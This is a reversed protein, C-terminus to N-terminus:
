DAANSALGALQRARATLQARNLDAELADFIWIVQWNLAEGPQLTALYGQQELEIYTATPDAYVEIEGENPAMLEAPVNAFVKVLLYDGAQYALWGEEGDTMVKHHEPGIDDANYTYWSIGQQEAFPLSAFDGTYYDTDGKPFFIQGEAPLRTIEWPAVTVERDSVSQLQYDIQLTNALSPLRYSKSFFLGLQPEEGSTLRVGTDTLSVQYPESDLVPPPPWGWNSQPSPWLVNGWNNGDTQARTFLQEKGNFVVSAIRGGVEPALTVTLEDRQLVIDSQTMRLYEPPTVAAPDPVQPECASLSLLSVVLLSRPNM